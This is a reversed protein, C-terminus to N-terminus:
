SGTHQVRVQGSVLRPLLADRLQALGRSQEENHKVQRHISMAIVEYLKVLESSPIVQALSHVHNRNLTPVASGANLQQFDLRKLLEFAYCPGAAGFEKVWLTTNLPWFDDLQLFVKGLVGSRGTVVGPGKVMLESHTGNHGSAAIVAYKGETRDKAPLDFGRQLVLLDELVGVGWGEPIEGLDSEILQDPFIDYLHAPLGPLSQSRKWRGEMKARVPEFDVFWAKFLTRAMAELTENKKRNLEIKDDLTGLIHAIARQEALQPYSIQAGLIQAPSLNAQGGSSTAIAIFLEQYSASSLVYSAFRGDIQAEKKVRLAGVRQNIFYNEAKRFQAIKGVWTEPSGDHRNGSMSILLDGFQALKNSKVRLFDKSVYSFDHESFEGAKVNKIKIVPVGDGIFDASKFAYGNELDFVDGITAVTWDNAM